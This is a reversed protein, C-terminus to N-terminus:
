LPVTRQHALYSLVSANLPDDSGAGLSFIMEIQTRILPYKGAVATKLSSSAHSNKPVSPIRKGTKQPNVAHSSTAAAFFCFSDGFFRAARLLPATKFELGQRNFPARRARAM